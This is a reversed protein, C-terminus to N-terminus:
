QQPKTTRRTLRKTLTVRSPARQIGEGRAAKVADLEEELAVLREQFYTTNKEKQLLYEEILDLKKKLLRNESTLEHGHVQELVMSRQVPMFSLDRQSILNCVHQELQSLQNADKSKLQNKLYLLFYIYHIRNHEEEVHSAFNSFMERGLSCVYCSSSINEEAVAAQQRLDSNSNSNTNNANEHKGSFADVITAFIINLLIGGIIIFLLVQFIVWLWQSYQGTVYAQLDFTALFQTMSGKTPIGFYANTFFCQLLTECQGQGGLYQSQFAFFSVISFAYILYILLLFQAVLAVFSRGLAKIVNALHTNKVTLQFLVYVTFYPWIIGAIAFVSYFIWFMSEFDLMVNMVSRQFRQYANWKMVEKTKRHLQMRDYLIYSRSTGENKEVLRRM